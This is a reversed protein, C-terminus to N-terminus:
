YYVLFAVYNTLVLIYQLVTRRSIGHIGVPKFTLPSCGAVRYRMLGRTVEKLQILLKRSNSNFSAIPLFLAIDMTIAFCSIYLFMGWQYVSHQLCILAYLIICTASFFIVELGFAMENFTYNIRGVLIQISKYVLIHSYDFNWRTKRSKRQVVEMLKLVSKSISVAIYGFIFFFMTCCGFALYTFYFEFAGCITKVLITLIFSFNELIEPVLCYIFLPFRPILIVLILTV